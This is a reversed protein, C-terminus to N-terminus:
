ASRRPGVVRRVGVSRRDGDFGMVRRPPTFNATAPPTAGAVLPIEQRAHTSRGDFAARSPRWPPRAGPPDPDLEVRGFELMIRRESSGVRNFEARTVSETRADYYVSVTMADIPPKMRQDRWVLAATDLLLSNGTARNTLIHAELIATSANGRM